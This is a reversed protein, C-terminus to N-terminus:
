MGWTYTRAGSTAFVFARFTGTAANVFDPSRRRVSPSRPRGITRSFQNCALILYLTLTGGNTTSRKFARGAKKWYPNPQQLTEKRWEIDNNVRALSLAQEVFYRAERAAKKGLQFSHNAMQILAKAQVQPHLPTDPMDLVRQLWRRAGIHDGRVFWHWHLNTMAAETQRSEIAWELAARLNDSMADIRNLWEIQGAGRMERDAREALAFFYALHRNRTGAEDGSHRLRRLAFQRITVLMDFRPDGRTDPVRQLLSKDLLSHILDSASKEGVTGRFIIEVAELTFGGSFVSLRAFLKQENDTLLDYSWGIANELTKQRAPATRMGSASLIFEDNLRALLSEPPM